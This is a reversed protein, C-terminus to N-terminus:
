MMVCMGYKEICAEEVLSCMFVVWECVREGKKGDWRRRGGGGWCREERM